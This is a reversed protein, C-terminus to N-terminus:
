KVIVSRSLIKFDRLSNEFDAHVNGQLFVAEDGKEIYALYILFKIENITGTIVRESLVQKGLEEKVNEQIKIDKVGKQELASVSEDLVNGSFGSLLPDDNGIAVIMNDRTDYHDKVEGDITYIFMDGMTRTFKFRSKSDNVTFGAMDYPTVKKEKDYYITQLSERIRKSTVSDCKATSANVTVM